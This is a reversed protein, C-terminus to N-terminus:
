LRQICQVTSVGHEGGRLAVLCLHEGIVEVTVARGVVLQQRVVQQPTSEIITTLQWISEFGVM